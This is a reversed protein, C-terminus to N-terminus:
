WVTGQAGLGKPTLSSYRKPVTFSTDGFEVSYYDGSQYYVRGNETM